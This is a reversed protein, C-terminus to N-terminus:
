NQKYTEWKARHPRPQGSIHCPCTGQVQPTEAPTEPSYTYRSIGQKGCDQCVAIHKYQAMIKVEKRKEIMVCLYEYTLM